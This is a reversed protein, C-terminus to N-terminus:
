KATDIRNPCFSAKTDIPLLDRGASSSRLAHSRCADEQLAHTAFSRGCCPLMAAANHRDARLM